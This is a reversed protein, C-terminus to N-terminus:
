RGLRHATRAARGLVEGDDSRAAAAVIPELLRRAEATRGRLLQLQGLELQADGLPMVAVSKALAAAADDYKGIATLARGRLLQVDADDPLTRTLEIAEAYRGERLARMADYRVRAPSSVEDPPRSQGAVPLATAVGLALAALVAAAPPILAPM